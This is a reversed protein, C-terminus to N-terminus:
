QSLFRLLVMCYISIDNCLCHAQCALLPRVNLYCSCCPARHYITRTTPKQVQLLDPHLLSQPRTTCPIRRDLSAGQESSKTESLSDAQVCHAIRLGQLIKLITFSSLHVLWQQIYLQGSLLSSGPLRTRHLNSYARIGHIWQRAHIVLSAKANPILILSIMGV